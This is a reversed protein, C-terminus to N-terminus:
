VKQLKDLKTLLKFKCKEVPLKKRTHIKCLFLIINLQKVHAKEQLQYGVTIEYKMLSFGICNVFKRTEHANYATQALTKRFM